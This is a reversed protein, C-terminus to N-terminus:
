AEEITSTSSLSGESLGSEELVDHMGSLRQKMLFKKVTNSVDDPSSNSVDDSSSKSVDDPSSNGESSSSSSSPRDSKTRLSSFDTAAAGTTVTTATRGSIADGHSGESNLTLSTGGSSSGSDRRRTQAGVEDDDDAVDVDHAYASTAAVNADGAEMEGLTAAGVSGYESQMDNEGIANIGEDEPLSGSADLAAIPGPSEPLLSMHVLSQHSQRVERSLQSLVEDLASLERLPDDVVTDFFYDTDDTVLGGSARPDLLNLEEDLDFTTSNGVSSPEMASIMSSLTSSSLSSHSVRDSLTMAEKAQPRRARQPSQSSETPRASPEDTVTDAGLVDSALTAAASSSRSSPGWQQYPAPRSSRIGPVSSSPESSLDDEYAADRARPTNVKQAVNGYRDNQSESGTPSSLVGPGDDAAYKTPVKVIAPEGADGVDGRPSRPQLQAENGVAIPVAGRCLGFAKDFAADVNNRLAADVNLSPNQVVFSGNSRNQGAISRNLRALDSSYVKSKNIREYRACKELTSEMGQQSVALRERRLAADFRSQAREELAHAQLM